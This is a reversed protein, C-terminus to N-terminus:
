SMEEHFIAEGFFGFHMYFVHMRKILLNKKQNVECNISNRMIWQNNWVRM